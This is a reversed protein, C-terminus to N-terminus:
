FNMSVIHADRKSIYIYIYTKNALLLRMFRAYKRIRQKFADM